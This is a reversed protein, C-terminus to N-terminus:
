SRSESAGHLALLEDVTRATAGRSTEVVRRGAEGVRDASAPDDLWGELITTIEAVDHALVAGGAAILADYVEQFNHVHPGTVVPVGWVAPELPNHGGVDVLSGGIFAAAGLGYARALEGITDLLLVNPQSPAEATRSRRAFPIGRRELLRAVADFREPHRPALILFIRSWGDSLRNVADILLVEEGELTSGAVTTTRDGAWTEAQSTWPLPEPNPELDYKVNGSVRIRAPAVGLDEFAEADAASRTLVLSIPELLNRLLGRVRRYKALSGPSLRANVVAVRVDRQGAQYLLEPWIETEVLALVRPRVADLVRKVPQPLDLPCAHVTLRDGVTQRALALGTATTATVTLPLECGRRGLEAVLQRAVEVEGVSVAHIWLGGADVVPFHRGLRHALPPRSKGSGRDKLWLM